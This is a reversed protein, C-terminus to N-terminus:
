LGPRKVIKSVPAKKNYNVYDAAAISNNFDKLAQIGTETIYYRGGKVNQRAYGAIILNDLCKYVTNKAITRKIKQLEIFVAVGNGSKLKRLIVLVHLELLSKLVDKRNILIRRFLLYHDLNDM